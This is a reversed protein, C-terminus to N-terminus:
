LWLCQPARYCCKNMICSAVIPGFIGFNWQGHEWIKVRWLWHVDFNRSYISWGQSVNLWDRPKRSLIFHNWKRHTAVKGWAHNEGHLPWKAGTPWKAGDVKGWICKPWTVNSEGYIKACLVFFVTGISFRFSMWFLAHSVPTLVPISYSRYVQLLCQVDYCFCAGVFKWGADEFVFSFSPAWM